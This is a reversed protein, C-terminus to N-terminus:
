VGRQSGQLSAVDAGDGALEIVAVDRGCAHLTLEEPSGVVTVSREARRATCQLGEPTRLVVGVPSHRYLLRARSSLLTWLGDARRTDATRSIWGPQARRVDEHHVFFEVANIKDQLRPLGLPSWWPPGGRILDVLEPWPWRGLGRQVRATYGALMPLVVGPAADM